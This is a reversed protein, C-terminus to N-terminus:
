IRSFIKVALATFYHLGGWLGWTRGLLGAVGHRRTAILLTLGALLAPQSKLFRVVALGQDAIALPGKLSAAIGVLEDRQGGIRALLEYRRRKVSHISNNM